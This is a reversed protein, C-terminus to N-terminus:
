VGVTSFSGGQNGPAFKALPAMSWFVRRGVITSVGKSCTFFFMALIEYYL